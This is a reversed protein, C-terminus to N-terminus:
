PICTSWVSRGPTSLAEFVAPSVDEVRDLAAAVYRLLVVPDNDREDLAVTAFPREDQEALHALLTTKGFGAPAVVTVVPARSARLRDIPESKAVTTARLAPSALKAEIVDFPLEATAM